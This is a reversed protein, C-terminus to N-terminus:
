SRLAKLAGCWRYLEDMMPPVAKVQAEPPKFEGTAQDIYQAFFPISVAEVLPVMKLGTVMLRAQQLARTGGSVGGYSVFGCPKYAWEKSLYDIANVLAPPMSYNYEALIFVFADARSVIASWRKTHEHEYKQFRPHNPEDFLPLKIDRLDVPEIAFKGHRRAEGLFWKAISDGKRGERTSSTVVQLNFESM